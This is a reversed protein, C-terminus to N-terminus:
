YGDDVMGLSDAVRLFAELEGKRKLLVDERAKLKNLEAIAQGLQKSVQERKQEDTEFTESMTTGEGLRKAGM